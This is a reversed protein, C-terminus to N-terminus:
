LSLFVLFLMILIRSFDVPSLYCYVQIKVIRQRIILFEKRKKWGRFKKQIQTAAAHVVGDSRGPKRTKSAVLSLAREDSLGVKDDDNETTRRRQLSYMRFMQHIRGAAQTANCLATLSDRLSLEDAADVYNVPTATRESVTQVAKAGSVVVTEDENPDNMTLSKLYDTLSSEALFGSIGKHGNGSALDAPTRGLPSEPSPDTLAGLAAGLSVLFAVM